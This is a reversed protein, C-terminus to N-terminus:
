RIRRRPIIGDPPRPLPTWHTWGQEEWPAKLVSDWFDLVFVGSSHLLLIQTGDQPATEIPEWEGYRREGAM